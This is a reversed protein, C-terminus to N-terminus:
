LVGPSTGLSHLDGHLLSVKGGMNIAASNVPALRYFFVLHGDVLSHIFFSHYTFVISYYEIESFFSIIDNAPFLTFCSIMRNVLYALSVLIFIV